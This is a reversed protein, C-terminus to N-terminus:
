IKYKRKIENLINLAEIPSINDLNIKKIEEIIKSEFKEFLLLQNDNIRYSENTPKQVNKKDDMFDSLLYKARQIM